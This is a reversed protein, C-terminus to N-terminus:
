AVYISKSGGILITKTHVCPEDFQPFTHINGFNEIIGPLNLSWGYSKDKNQTVNHILFQRIRIDQFLFM